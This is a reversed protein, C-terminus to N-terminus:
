LATGVAPAGTNAAKHSFVQPAEVEAEDKPTHIEIYDPMQIVSGNPLTRKVDGM